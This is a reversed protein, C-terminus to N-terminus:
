RRRKKATLLVILGVGVAAAILKNNGTNLWDGFSQGAPSAAPKQPAAVRPAPAPPRVLLPGAASKIAPYITDGSGPVYPPMFIDPPVSPMPGAPIDLTTPAKPLPPVYPVVAINSDAGLSRYM